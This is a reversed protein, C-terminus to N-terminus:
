DHLSERTRAVWDALPARPIRVSGTGLLGGNSDTVQVYVDISKANEYFHGGTSFQLRRVPVADRRLKM